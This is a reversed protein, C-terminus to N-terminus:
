RGTPMARRAPEQRRGRGRRTVAPARALGLGRFYQALDAPAFGAAWSSRHGRGARQRGHRRSIQVACRAAAAYLHSGSDRAAPPVAHAGRAACGPGPGGDGGAAARAAERASLRHVAAAARGLGRPHRRIGEAPGAPKGAPAARAARCGRRNRDARRQPRLRAPARPRCSRSGCQRAFDGRTLLPRAPWAPVAPIMRHARRLVLTVDIPATGAHPGLYRLHARLPVAHTAPAAQNM